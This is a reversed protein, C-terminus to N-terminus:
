GSGIAWKPGGPPWKPNQLEHQLRHTIAGPVALSTNKDKRYERLILNNGYDVTNNKMYILHFAHKIDKNTVISM